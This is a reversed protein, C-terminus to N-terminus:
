NSQLKGWAAAPTFEDAGNSIQVAYAVFKLTPLTAGARSLDDMMTKTVSDKVTVKNSNGAKDQIVYFVQDAAAADVEMYYVDTVGELKSWAKEGTIVSYDIFDKFAYAVNNGNADKGVVTGETVKVFLWCPESNAKVTVKPDKSITDGPVMKYSNNDKDGNNGDVDADSETLEISINGVTFTNTVEQTNDTLWALTGGAAGVLLLLTCVLAILTKRKM